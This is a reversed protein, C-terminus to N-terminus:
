QVPIDAEWRGGQGTIDVEVECTKIQQSSVGDGAGWFQWILQGAYRRNGEGGERNYWM